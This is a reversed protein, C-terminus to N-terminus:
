EGCRRYDYPIKMEKGDDGPGAISAHLEDGERRYEILNPFDHEANEFHIWGDGRAAQTFITQPEGNPQVHFNARKGDFVIRMFEFSAVKAGRVTRSMGILEGGAEPLWVENVETDNASGCWRGALWDLGLDGAIAPAAGVALFAGFIVKAYRM